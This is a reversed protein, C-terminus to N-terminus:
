KKNIQCKKLEQKLEQILLNEIREKLKKSLFYILYMNLLLAITHLTLNNTLGLFFSTLGWGLMISYFILLVWEVYLLTTQKDKM